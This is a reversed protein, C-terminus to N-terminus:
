WIKFVMYIILLFQIINIVDRWTVVRDLFKSM